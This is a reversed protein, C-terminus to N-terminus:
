TTWRTMPSPPLAAGPPALPSTASPTTVAKTSPAARPPAPRAPPTSAMSNIPARPVTSTSRPPVAAPWPLYQSTTSSGALPAQWLQGLHTYAYSTAYSAGSLGASLTQTGCTGNGAAPQSGSNGAWVLQSQENYCFNQTESGGSGSQGPVAAQTTSLSVLNSAADYWRSQDFIQGSAGSGSQWTATAEVPRLDGDYTFHEKALTPTSTDTSAGFTLDSVLANSNFSLSALNGAEHELLDERTHLAGELGTRLLLSMGLRAGEYAVRLEKGAGIVMSAGLAINLL